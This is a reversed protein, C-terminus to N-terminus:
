FFNFDRVGKEVARRIFGELKEDTVMVSDRFNINVNLNVPRSSAQVALATGAEESLLESPVTEGRSRSIQTRSLTPDEETWGQAEEIDDELETAMRRTREERESAIEGFTQAMEDFAASGAVPEDVGVRTANRRMVEDFLEFMQSRTIISRGLEGEAAAPERELGEFLGQVLEDLEPPVALRAPGAEGEGLPLRQLVPTPEEGGTLERARGIPITAEKRGAAPAVYRETAGSRRILFPLERNARELENIFDNVVRSPAIGPRDL